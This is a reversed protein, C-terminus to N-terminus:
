ERLLATFGAQEFDRDTTLAAQLGRDRMTVFSICDTLGWEKDQREEYLVLGRHFLEPSAEVVEFPDAREISRIYKYPSRVAGSRRLHM